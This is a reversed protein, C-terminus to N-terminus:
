NKNAASSTTADVTSVTESLRTTTSAGSTRTTTLQQGNAARRKGTRREKRLLARVRQNLCFAVFIFVGQLTNVIVNVYSLVVHGVADSIFALIWTIGFLLALKAYIKVEDMAEEALSRNQVMRSMRKTRRVSVIVVIFCITSLLLSALVPVGFVVLLVTGTTFLCPSSRNYIAPLETCDCLTLATCVSVILLAGGWVLLMAAVVRRCNPGDRSTSMRGGFTRAVNYSLMAMWFFASLWSLHTLSAFVVCAPGAANLAGALSLLLIAVFLAVVLNMTYLGATNRLVPIMSYVIFTAALALISLCSCILSVIWLAFTNPDTWDVPGCIAASGDSLLVFDAGEFKFGTSSHRIFSASWEFESPNLVILELCNMDLIELCESPAADHKASGVGVKKWLYTSFIQFNLSSDNGDMTQFVDTALLSASACSDIGSLVAGEITYVAVSGINCLQVDTTNLEFLASLKSELNEILDFSKVLIDLRVDKPNTMQSDLVAQWHLAVEGLSINVLSSCNEHLITFPSSPLGPADFSIQTCRGDENIVGSACIVARCRDLFPDYLEGPQCVSDEGGGWGFDFLAEITPTDASPSCVAPCEQWIDDESCLINCLPGCNANPVVNLGNCMGCHPNKYHSGNLHLPAFYDLCAAELTTNAFQPSCSSVTRAPCTRATGLSNNGPPEYVYRGTPTGDITVNFRSDFTTSGSQDYEYELNANWKQLHAPEVGHCIACFVNKYVAGESDYVPLSGIVDDDSAMKECNERIFSVDWSEPCFSVLAWGFYQYRYKGSQGPMWVCSYYQIAVGKMKAETWDSAPHCNSHYDYCCDDFFACADDCKCTEQRLPRLTDRRGQKCDYGCYHIEGCLFAPIDFRSTEEQCEVYLNPKLTCNSDVGPQLACQSLETESGDCGVASVLVRAPIADVKPEPGFLVSVSTLFGLQRCIVDRDRSDPYGCIAGWEDSPRLRGVVFGGGSFYSQALKLEMGYGPLPSLSVNCKLGAFSSCEEFLPQQVPCDVLKSETGVCQVRQLLVDMSYLSSEIPVTYPKSAATDPYGLHRCALQHAHTAFMWFWLDSCVGHWEASNNCRMQLVGEDELVGTGLRFDLDMACVVWLADSIGCHQGDFLTLSCTTGGHSSGWCFYGAWNSPSTRLEDHSGNSSRNRLGFTESHCFFKYGARRCIDAGIGPFLDSGSLCVTNWAEDVSSRLQVVGENPSIGGFLRYSVEEDTQLPDDLITLTRNDTSNSCVVGVDEDHSCDHNDRGVHPCDGLVEENGSCSVDDMLIPGSGPGFKTHESAVSSYGLQRCVVLADEISWYDDCVTGWEGSLYVKVRGESSSNGGVLRVSGDAQATTASGCCVLLFVCMVFSSNARKALMM